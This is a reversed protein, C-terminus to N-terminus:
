FIHFFNHLYFLIFNYLLTALFIHPDVNYLHMALCTQTIIEKLQLHQPIVGPMALSRQAYQGSTVIMFFYYFLDAM